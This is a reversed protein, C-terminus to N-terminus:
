SDAGLLRSGFVPYSFFFLFFIVALYFLVLHYELRLSAAFESSLKLYCNIRRKWYIILFVRLM